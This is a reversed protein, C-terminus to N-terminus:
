DLVPAVIPPISVRTGVVGEVCLVHGQKIDLDRVRFTLARTEVGTGLGADRALGWGVGADVRWFFGFKDSNFLLKCVILM